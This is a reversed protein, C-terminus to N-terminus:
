QTFIVRIVFFGHVGNSSLTFRKDPSSAGQMLMVIPFVEGLKEIWM